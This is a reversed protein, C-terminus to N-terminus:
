AFGSPMKGFYAVNADPCTPMHQVKYSVWPRCLKLFQLGGSPLFPLGHFIRNLSSVSFCMNYAHM